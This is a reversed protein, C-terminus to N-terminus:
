LPAFASFWKSLTQQKIQLAIIAVITTFLTQKTGLKKYVLVIAIFFPLWNIQKDYYGLQILHEENGLSNLYINEDLSRLKELMLKTTKHDQLKM